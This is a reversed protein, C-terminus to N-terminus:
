IRVVSHNTTASSQLVDPLRLQSDRPHLCRRNRALDPGCVHRRLHLAGDRPRSTDEPDPPHLQHVIRRDASSDLHFTGM